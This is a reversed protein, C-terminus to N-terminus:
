EDAENEKELTESLVEIPSMLGCKHADRVFEIAKEKSAGNREFERVLIGTIISYDAMLECPKGKIKIKGNKTKIM